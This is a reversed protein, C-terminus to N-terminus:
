KVKMPSQPKSTKVRNARFTGLANWTLIEHTSKIKMEYYKKDFWLNNLEDPDDELNYLEGDKSGPYIVIKWKKDRRMIVYESASQIHDRGLESYVYKRFPKKLSKTKRLLPVLSKAEWNNPSKIKAFDLITPAIDMLQVLESCIFKNELLNKNWFILPVRTVSDYMTWKQIHGHEGLSEGHDSCFIIITNDLYGKTKLATIIEGVKYDILTINAAYHKYLAQLDTKNYNTRWAVSDINYNIMSERLKQHMKPQKELEYNKPMKVPIKINKYLSLFRKPPDFPPHPGPFGIQLFFPTNAKRDKIWWKANDGVFFDPHMEDELEWTFCGLSNLFRNKNKKLRTYRSPKVLGRSKLAKDWEDYISREHEELFLPRDKNEVIFRQHFGGKEDYPNIHMKGINVCHYGKKALWNVWTPVWKEFNTYINTTHPYMGKFVSARSSVCVPSTVFCNQFSVGGKVLKDLNPTKIWKTGLANITDARQQDTMILLINPLKKKNNNKRM